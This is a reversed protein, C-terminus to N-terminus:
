VARQKRMYWVLGIVVVAAGIMGLAMLLLGLDPLPATTPVAAVVTLTVTDTATNGSKDTVTIQLDYSGPAFGDINVVIRGGGWSGSSYVTSNESVEFSAPYADSATWTITNGVTDEVYLVDAPSDINPSTNDNIVLVRLTDEAMNGDADYIVMHLVHLGEPLDDVNVELTGSTWSGTESEVDDVYLVYTDPNLDNVTWTVTQGLADVFAEMDPANSMTPPTADYVHIIVTDSVTNDNIDWVTIVLTHTGYTLGDVNVIVSTFNWANGNWYGGDIEVEWHSLYDDVPYWTITNATSGEAYSIDQPQNIIPTTFILGQPYRDQANGVVVPAGSFPYWYNGLSV